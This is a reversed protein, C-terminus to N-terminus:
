GRGMGVGERGLLSVHLATNEVKELICSSRLLTRLFMWTGALGARNGSAGESRPPWAQTQQPTKNQKHTFHNIEEARVSSKEQCGRMWKCM